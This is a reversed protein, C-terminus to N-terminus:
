AFIYCPQRRQTTVHNPVNSTRANYHPDKIHYSTVEPIQLQMIFKSNYHFAPSLLGILQIQSSIWNSFLSWLYHNPHSLIYKTM